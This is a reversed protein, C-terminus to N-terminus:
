PLLNQEKGFFRDLTSQQLNSREEKLLETYPTLNNTVGRRIFCAREFDPDNETLVNLAQAIIELNEQLIKKTLKKPQKVIEDDEIEPNRYSEKEIEILDENSFGADHLNIIEEVDESILDDFGVEHATQVTEVIISRLNNAVSNEHEKLLIKNWVGRMCDSSVENWSEGINEIANMINFSKWFKLISDKQIDVALLLQKFTRRLYYAKFNAIVGQDMPQILSTTNPPLFIVDVPITKSLASLNKSHGPANDIILLARPEMRKSQCYVKVAPCFYKEFWHEFITATVWAKRNSMWIVPLNNKSYGKMARPNESHYLLLPKLKFDGSANGGLLLTLRDKAAKFGPSRKEEKSIFTKSPMRKWFLGTEDVNFILEPPYEKEVILSKLSETFEKVAGVDASAAEGCIKISHINARVKFKEFWGRSAAFTEVASSTCPEESNQKQLEEFLSRAKEMIVAQSLPMDRNNQDEVWYTLLKEMIEIIKSRTRSTKTASVPTTSQVSKKIKEANQMITRITSGPLNLEHCVDIQREGNEIKRIVKLKIDMSINRRLNKTLDKVSEKRGSM